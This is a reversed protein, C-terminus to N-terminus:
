LDTHQPVEKLRYNTQRVIEPDFKERYYEIVDSLITDQSVTRIASGNRFLIKTKDSM